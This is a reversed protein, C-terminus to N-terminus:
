RWFKYIIAFTLEILMLSYCAKVILSALPRQAALRKMAAGLDKEERFINGNFGHSITIAVILELGVLLVLVIGVDKM